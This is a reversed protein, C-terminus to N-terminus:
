TSCKEALVGSQCVKMLNRRMGRPSYHTIERGVGGGWGRCGCLVNVRDDIGVNFVERCVNWATLGENLKEENRQTLTTQKNDGGGGRGGVFYM